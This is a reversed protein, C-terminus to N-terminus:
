SPCFGILETKMKKFDGPDRIRAKPKQTKFRSDLIRFGSGCRSILPSGRALRLRSSEYM